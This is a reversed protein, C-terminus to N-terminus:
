NNEQEYERGQNFGYSCGKERAEEMAKNGYDILVLPTQVSIWTKIMEDKTKDDWTGDTFKPYSSFKEIAQERLYKEFM